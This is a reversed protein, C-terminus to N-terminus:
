SKDVPKKKMEGLFEMAKKADDYSLIEKLTVRAEEYTIEIPLNIYDVKWQNLAWTDREFISFDWFEIRKGRKLNWINYPLFLGYKWYIEELNDWTVEITEDQPKEEALFFDSTCEWKKKGRRVTVRMRYANM